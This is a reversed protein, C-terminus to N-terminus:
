KCNGAMQVARDKGWRPQLEAPKEADYLEISKKFLKCANETSSGFFQASGFEMEAKMMVARPNTPKIAVAKNFTETAIPAMTQGRTAPDFVMKMMTWYGDLVVVESENPALEMAKDILPRARDLTPEKLANDQTMFSMNIYSYGAYYLPLWENTAMKSIREFTNVVEQLQEATQAAHMADINEKMASKYAEDSAFLVNMSFIFLVATLM